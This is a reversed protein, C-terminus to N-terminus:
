ADLENISFGLMCVDDGLKNTGAHQQVTELIRPFLEKLPLRSQEALLRQLRDEGFEDADGNEAEIIGDTYLLIEDGPKLQVTFTNFEFDPTIALAPGPDSEAIPLPAAKNEGPQILCPTPHGAIAGTLQGTRVDIVLCCATAFLFADKSQLMPHLEKNLRTMFEGASELHSALHDSICRILGTILAARVGHGMVDCILLGARHEDLRHVACYDGGLKNDAEYYYHFDLLPKRDKSIFVPYNHPLFTQQLLGAMQFDNAIQENAQRLQENTRRLEITAARLEEEKEKLETIDRGIGICGAVRGDKDRLPIKTTSVWKSHGDEWEVHEEKCQLPEGTEYIKLEDDRAQRAFERALLDYDTKGVADEPSKFGNWRACSRNMLIFRSDLDKFFINDTMNDLLQQLLEMNKPTM